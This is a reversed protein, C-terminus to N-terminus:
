DHYKGGPEYPLLVTFTMGGSDNREMELTGGEEEVTKNVLFLGFGRHFGEKTSFGKELIKNEAGRPIGTGQDEVAAELLGDIYSLFVRIRKRGSNESSEIANDILNGLITILKHSFAPDKSPPIETECEITMGVQAERAYSIKGILFGALASDKIYKTVHGVEHAQHEVLTGIFEKLREYERMEILGLLVHLQNMFEHSQARLTDAYLKVGTLEEALRNVETKDRFTAIAGIVEEQVILPVRNTIIAVGNIVQEEDLEGEKTSLVRELSTGPLFDHIVMGIPEKAGLGAKRFIRRASENVIVIVGDRDIAIIGERVSHLMQNREEHIRAIAYPELGFLSRKIYWALLFAGAIGILVGIISGILIQRQNQHISEEVAELSIGVSVAGVQEGKRNIVPAFARLSQGLTGESKSVYTKGELVRQEDGGQFPKGILSQNPHSLRIGNMDMVVIFLVDSAEQVSMTYEQIDMDAEGNELEQQVLRSQAVTKSVIGAKEELQNEIDSGTSRTILLDTILLSLLVVLCVFIMIITSLKMRPKSM